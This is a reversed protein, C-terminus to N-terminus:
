NEQIMKPEPGSAKVMDYPFKEKSNTWELSTKCATFITTNLICLKVWRVRSLIAAMKASSLKLQM